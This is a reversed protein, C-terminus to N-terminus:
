IAAQHPGEPINDEGGEIHDMAAGAIANFLFAFAGERDVETANTDVKFLWLNEENSHEASPVHIPASAELTKQFFDMPIPAGNSNFSDFLADSLKHVNETYVKWDASNDLFPKPDFARAKRIASKRLASRSKGTVAVIIQLILILALFKASTSLTSM